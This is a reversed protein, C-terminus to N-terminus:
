LNLLTQIMEDVTKIVKANAAYSQEIQLLSQIEHDSDVGGQAEMSTFSDLRTAAYNADGQASLKNSANLSLLNSSLVSFSRAGSMFGGSSPQRDATLAVRLTTLLSTNGPPGQTVAGLGDRLRWVAGGKSTDVTANLQLRQALGVENVPDFASGNDTFLGPDGAARTADVGSDQFREVLDRAVADIQAQSNVGIQDRVAFNGALSGGLIVSSEGSTATAVGNLTLGSVGGSQLTMSASISSTATFGFVAPIKDMLIAGGTSYLAISGDKQQIERVPVIKAIQDIIQQRQDQLASTDQGLGFGNHIQTNLKSARALGDNLLQVQSAIETDAATRAAQIDKGVATLSSIVGKAASAVNNLRPESEPHATVETLAADFAAVRGNLSYAQDPTGMLTELRTYFAARTEADGQESQALRRDNLLPQDVVRNVGVIQVGQGTHGVTRASLLLERRGYGPTTANAINSSVLEAAKAAATLGSLASTLTGGITM